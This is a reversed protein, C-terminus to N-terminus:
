LGLRRAILTAPLGTLAELQAAFSDRLLELEDLHREYEGILAPEHHCRAALGNVTSAALDLRLGTLGLPSLHGRQAPASAARPANEGCGGARNEGCGGARNEGCGSHGQIARWHPDSCQWDARTM